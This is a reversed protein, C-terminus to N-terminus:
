VAFLPFMKVGEHNESNTSSVIILCICTCVLRVCNISFSAVLIWISPQYAMMRGNVEDGTIDNWEPM